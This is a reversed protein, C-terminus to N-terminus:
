LRVILYFNIKVNFKDELQKQRRYKLPSIKVPYQKSHLILFYIFPLIISEYFLNM